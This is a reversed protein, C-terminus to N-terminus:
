DNKTDQPSEADDSTPVESITMTEENVVEELDATADCAEIEAEKENDASVFYTRNLTVRTEVMWRKM